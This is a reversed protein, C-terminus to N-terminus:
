SIVKIFLVTKRELPQADLSTIEVGKHDTLYWSNKTKGKQVEGLYFRVKANKPMVIQEWKGDKQVTAYHKGDRKNGAYLTTKDVNKGSFVQPFYAEWANDKESASLANDVNIETIFQQVKKAVVDFDNSSAIISGQNYEDYSWLEFRTKGSSAPAPKRDGKVASRMPKVTEKNVSKKAM